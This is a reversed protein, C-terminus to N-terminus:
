RLARDVAGIGEADLRLLSLSDNCGKNSVVGGLPGHRRRIIGVRPSLSACSLAPRSSAWGRGRTWITRARGCGGDATEEHRSGTGDAPRQRRGQAISAFRSPYVVEQPQKADTLQTPNTERNDRVSGDPEVDPRHALADDSAPAAAAQPLGKVSFSLLFRPSDAVPLVGFREKSPGNGPRLRTM